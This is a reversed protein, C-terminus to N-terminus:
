EELPSSGPGPRRGWYVACLVLVTVLIGVGLALLVPSATLSWQLLWWEGQTTPATPNETLAIASQLLWTGFGLVGVGIVAILATFPNTWPPREAPAVAQVVMSPKVDRSPPGDQEAPRATGDARDSTDATLSAASADAPPTAPAPASRQLASTVQPASRATGSRAAHPGNYGRQFAPDYRPDIAPQEAM